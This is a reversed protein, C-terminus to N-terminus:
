FLFSVCVVEADSLVLHLHDIAFTRVTLCEKSQTTIRAKM